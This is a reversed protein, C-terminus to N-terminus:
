DNGNEQTDIPHLAETVILYTGAFTGHGGRVRAMIELKRKVYRLAEALRDARAEATALHGSILQCAEMARDREARLAEVLAEASQVAIAAGNAVETAETRWREVEARLREIEAILPAMNARAYDEVMADTPGLITPWEPLPLLEIDTM